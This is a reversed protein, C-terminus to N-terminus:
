HVRFGGHRSRSRRDIWWWTGVGTVLIAAACIGLFWVIPISFRYLELSASLKENAAHLEDLEALEARRRESRSKVQEELEELRALRDSVTSKFNELESALADREQELLNVRRRAPEETM